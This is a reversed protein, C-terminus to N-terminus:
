LQAGGRELAARYTALDVNGGTLVLGVRRGQMRSAESRLAALPAAGAGEAINHTDRFYCAMAVEIEEDSVTVVRSAGARIVELAVPNPVRVALGDAITEPLGTEIPEGAEFSRAYAPAGAAVVGIVETRLGLAERAALVACIGSGLGIPVYVADLPPADRFFELAYSAVGPLLSLDFSPVMHWGHEDAQGRAHEYAEQFDAGVEVLEAGYARMAANKEPNNGHPVAIIARVGLRGAAFAVSQGHNGRTAAIVTEIDPHEARLTELYVLGGRVKFAGTPTHNEHKVWVECGCREALLPWHRTPTAGMLTDVRDAASRLTELTPLANSPM